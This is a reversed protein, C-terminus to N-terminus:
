PQRPYVTISKRRHLARVPIVYWIRVPAIYAVLFDISRATYVRRGGSHRCNVHFGRWHRTASLKVQVRYWCKGRGVLFDFPLSDGWPKAVVLGRAAAALMFRIEALEGRPKPSRAM